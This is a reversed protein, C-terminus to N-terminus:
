YKRADEFMKKFQRYYPELGEKCTDLSLTNHKEEMKKEVQDLIEYIDDTRKGLNAFYEFIGKPHMFRYCDANACIEAEKCEFPITGHHAEICNIIKTKAEDDIDFKKLFEKAADSSMKIHDQIKGEKLAQGLKLDSLCSGVHVITKDVDFKEALELAKKESIEFLILSPARYRKIEEVAYKRAEEIIDM